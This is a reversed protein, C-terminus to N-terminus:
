APNVKRYDKVAYPSGMPPVANRKGVPYIPMLWIVNIGLAKISDLRGTVGALDHQASFARINVEYMIVDKTDPVGAFPSGYQSPLSDTVVTVPPPPPTFPPPGDHKGCSGAAVLMLLCCINM